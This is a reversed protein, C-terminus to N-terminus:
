VSVKLVKQAAAEDATHSSSSSRRTRLVKLRREKQRTYAGVSLFVYVYYM